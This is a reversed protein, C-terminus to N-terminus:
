NPAAHHLRELLLLSERHLTPAIAPGGSNVEGYQPKGDYAYPPKTDWQSRPIIYGLQDNALGIVMNVKGRMRSRLPPTEAPLIGFDAGAPSEIGGDAIEPYIEGPLTLVDLDGVRFANIETRIKGWHWGPHILGLMIPIRFTGSVPVYVTKAAMAVFPNDIKMVDPDRLARVTRVALAEGLAQAKEFSATEFTDVGNRATVKMHMPTMLGGLMGQFFLCIGGLGPVGDPDSLGQEVGERWYHVFDSSILLNKGELCEPHNGWSMMTAITEDTDPKVFRALCLTEDYVMPKRTDNSYAGPELRTSTLHMVAPQATRVAEEVAQKCAREVLAMYAADFRPRLLSYSWIGTTDPGEHTHTCSFMVHDIKLAPDLSKRIRIYPEELIGISDITVMAVTVGNNRFAIARVWLPDHVGQAPRNEDFGAIWVLDFTGNHNRDEYTDGKDPRFAGDGDVDTWTDYQSLDPTIDRKAVGVELMGPQAIGDPAPKVLDIRYSRYPGKMRYLIVSVVLLLVVFLFSLIKHRRLFKM